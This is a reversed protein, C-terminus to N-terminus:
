HGSTKSFWDATTTCTVRHFVASDQLVQPKKEKQVPAMQCATRVTTPRKWNLKFRILPFSGWNMMLIHIMNIKVHWMQLVIIQPKNLFGDWQIWVLFVSACSFIIHGTQHRPEVRSPTTACTIFTNREEMFGKRIQTSNGTIHCTQKRPEANRTPHINSAGLILFVVLSSSQDACKPRAHSFGAPVNAM